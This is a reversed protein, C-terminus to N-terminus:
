NNKHFIEIYYFLFIEEFKGGFLVDQYHVDSKQRLRDEEKEWQERLQQRRMDSSLLEAEIDESKNTNEKVEDSNSIKDDHQDNSNTDKEANRKKAEVTKRLENDKSKLYDLDKQM